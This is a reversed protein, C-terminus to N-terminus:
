TGVRKMTNGRLEKKIISEYGGRDRREGQPFSKKKGVSAVLGAM